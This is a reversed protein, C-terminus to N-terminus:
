LGKKEFSRLRDLPDADGAQSAGIVTLLWYEAPAALIKQRLGRSLRHSDEELNYLRSDIGIFGDLLHAITHFVKSVYGQGLHRFDAATQFGEAALEAFLEDIVQRNAAEGQALREWFVPNGANVAAEERVRVVDYRILETRAFFRLVKHRCTEFDPGAVLLEHTGTLEM